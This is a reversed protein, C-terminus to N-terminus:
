RLDGQQHGVLSNSRPLEKGPALRLLNLLFALSATGPGAGFDAVRTRRHQRGEISRPRSAGEHQEFLALFKAAQLPLFYLLYSSRFKPHSFYQPIGKSREETFLGLARRDGEPLVARRREGFPKDKWTERPSYTKKGLEPIGRGRVLALRRPFPLKTAAGKSAIQASKGPPSIQSAPM